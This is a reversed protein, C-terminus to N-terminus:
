SGYKKAFEVLVEKWLVSLTVEALEAYQAGAGIADEKSRLFHVGIRFQWEKCWHRALDLKAEYDTEALLKAELEHALYKKNPWSKWFEPAIVSELVATNKVLYESLAESTGM